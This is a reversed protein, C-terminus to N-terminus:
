DVTKEADWDDLSWGAAVKVARSRPDPVVRQSVGTAGNVRGTTVSWPITARIGYWDPPDVTMRRASSSRAVPSTCHVTSEFRVSASRGLVTAKITVPLAM